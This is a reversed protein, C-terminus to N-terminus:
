PHEIRILVFSPVNGPNKWPPLRNKFPGCGGSFRNAFNLVSEVAEVSQALNNLVPFYNRLFVTKPILIQNQQV